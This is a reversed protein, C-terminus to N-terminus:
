NSAPPTNVGLTVTTQFQWQGRTATIVVSTASPATPSFTVLGATAPENSVAATAYDSSTWYFQTNDLFIAAWQAGNYTPYAVASVPVQLSPQDGALEYFNYVPLTTLPGPLQNQPVYFPVVGAVGVDGLATRDLADQQPDNVPETIDRVLFYDVSHNPYFIDGIPGILSVGTTSVTSGASSPVNQFGIAGLEQQVTPSPNGPISPGFSQPNTTISAYEDATCVRWGTYGGINQNQQVVSSVQSITSTLWNNYYMKKNSTDLIIRNDYLTFPSVLLKAEGTLNSDYNNQLQQIQEQIQAISSGPQSVTQTVNNVGLALAEGQYNRYTSFMQATANNQVPNCFLRTGELQYQLAVLGGQGGQTVGTLVDFILNMAQNAQFAGFSQLQAYTSGPNTAITQGSSIEQSLLTLLQMGAQISSITSTALGAQTSFSSIAFQANVDSQLGTIQNQIQTLQQEIQALAQLVAADSGMPLGVAALIENVGYSAVAGLVGNLLGEGVFSAIDPGAASALSEGAAGELGESLGSAVSRVSRTTTNSVTTVGFSQLGSFLLSGPQATDLLGAITQAAADSGGAGTAYQFFGSDCFPLQNKSDYIFEPDFGQYFPIATVLQATAQTFSVGPHNDMYDALVTTLTNVHIFHSTFAPDEYTLHMTAGTTSPDPLSAVVSIGAPADSPVTVSFLGSSNSTTTVAPQGSMRVAVDVNPVAAGQVEVVGMLTQESAGNSSASSGVAPVTGAGGQANSGGGGCGTLLMLGVFIATWKRSQM